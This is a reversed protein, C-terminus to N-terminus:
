EGDGTGPTTPRAALGAARTPFTAIIDYAEAGPCSGDPEYFFVWGPAIWVFGNGPLFDIQVVEQQTHKDGRTVGFCGDTLTVAQAETM